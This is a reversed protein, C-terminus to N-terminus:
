GKKEPSHGRSSKKNEQKTVNHTEGGGEEGLPKSKGQNAGSTELPNGGSGKEAQKKESEPRTTSPDFAADSEAAEQDTGSMSGQTSQPKLSERDQDGKYPSRTPPATHFPSAAAASQVSARPLLSQRHALTGAGRTQHLPARLAHTISRLSSM